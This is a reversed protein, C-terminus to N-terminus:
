QFDSDVPEFDPLKFTEDEANEDLRLQVFVKRISPPQLYDEGTLWPQTDPTAPSCTARALPAALGLAGLAVVLDLNNTKM